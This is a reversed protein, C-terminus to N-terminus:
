LAPRGAIAMFEDDTKSLTKNFAKCLEEIISTITAWDDIECASNAMFEVREVFLGSTTLLDRFMGSIKVQNETM